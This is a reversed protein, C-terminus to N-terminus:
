ARCSLEKYMPGGPKMKACNMHKARGLLQALFTVRLDWLTRTEKEHREHIEHYILINLLCFSRNRNSGDTADKRDEAANKVIM